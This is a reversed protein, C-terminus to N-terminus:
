GWLRRALPLRANGMRKKRQMQRNESFGRIGPELALALAKAPDGAHARRDVIFNPGEIWGRDRMGAALPEMIIPLIPLQSSLLGLRVVKPQARALPAALLAGPSILFPRRRIQGM